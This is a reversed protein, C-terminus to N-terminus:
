NIVTQDTGAGELSVGVALDARATENFTGADLHIVDGPTTVKGCAYTLTRWPSGISGNNSNNGAVDVYYKASYVPISLLIFIKLLYMRIVFGQSFAKM